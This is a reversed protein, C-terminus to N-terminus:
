WSIWRVPVDRLWQMYTGNGTRSLPSPTRSKLRCTASTIGFWIKRGTLDRKRRGKRGTTQLNLCPPSPVRFRHRSRVADILGEQFHINPRFRAWRSSSRTKTWAAMEPWGKVVIVRAESFAYLKGDKVSVGPRFSFKKNRVGPKDISM